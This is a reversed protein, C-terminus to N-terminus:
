SKVIGRPFRLGPSLTWDDRELGIRSGLLPLNPLLPQDPWVNFSQAEFCSVSLSGM